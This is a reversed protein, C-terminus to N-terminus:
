GGAMWPHRSAWALKAPRKLKKLASEAKLAASRSDCAAAALIRRPPNIRTFAAGRGSCHKGFRQAVDPTIGTYLRDGACELMYVYWCATASDSMGVM